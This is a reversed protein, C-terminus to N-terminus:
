FAAGAAPVECAGTTSAAGVFFVVALFTATGARGVVVAAGAAAAVFAAAGRFARDAHAPSVCVAQEVVWSHPQIVGFFATEDFPRASFGYQRFIAPM